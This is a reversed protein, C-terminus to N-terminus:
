GDDRSVSVFLDRVADYSGKLEYWESRTTVYLPGNPAQAIKTGCCGCVNSSVLVSRSFTRGGDTSRTLRVETPPADKGKEYTKAAPQLKPDSQNRYDLFAVFVDGDPAAYVYHMETSTVVGEVGEGAVEVPASFTKGGDDSRALRLFARTDYTYGELGYDHQVHHNFLAYVEGKPGVAVQTPAAAFSYVNDQPGSVVVPTSFTKGGDESRAVVAESVPDEHSGAPVLRHRAWAAFVTGSKPDVATTPNRAGEPQLATPESVALRIDLAGATGETVKGSGSDRSDTTSSGETCAGALMAVAGLAALMRRGGM